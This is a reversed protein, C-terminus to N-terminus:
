FFFGVSVGQVFESPRDGDHSPLTRDFEDPTTGNAYWRVTWTINVRPLTVVVPKFKLGAKDFTDFNKGFFVDYTAGIFGHDFAYKGNKWSRSRVELGPEIMVAWVEGFGYDPEGAKRFPDWGTSVYPGTDLSLWVRREDRTKIYNNTFQWEVVKCIYRDDSDPPLKQDRTRQSETDGLVFECHVPFSTMQPGSMKWIFDWLSAHAVGPSALVLGFVIGAIWRPTGNM